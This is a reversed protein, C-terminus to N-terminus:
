CAAHGNATRVDAGNNPSFGIFVNGASCFNAGTLLGFAGNTLGHGARAGDAIM